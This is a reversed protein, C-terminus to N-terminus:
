YCNTSSTNGFTNTNCTIQPIPASVPFGAGRSFGEGFSQSGAGRAGGLLSKLLVSKATPGAPTTAALTKAIGLQNNYAVVNEDFQKALDDYKKQLEAIKAKDSAEIEHTLTMYKEISTYQTASDERCTQLETKVKIPEQAVAFTAVLLMLM